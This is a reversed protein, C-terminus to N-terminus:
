YLIVVFATCVFFFRCQMNSLHAYLSLQSGFVAWFFLASLPVSITKCRAAQAKYYLVQYRLDASQMLYKICSGLKCPNFAGARQINMGFVASLLYMNNNNAIKILPIDRVHVFTIAIFSYCNIAVTNLMTKLLSQGSRM